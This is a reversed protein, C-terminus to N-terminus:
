KKKPTRHKREFTLLCQYHRRSVKHHVGGRMTLVIIFCYDLCFNLCSSARGLALWCDSFIPFQMKKKESQCIISGGQHIKCHYDEGWCIESRRDPCQHLPALKLLLIKLLVEFLNEQPGKWTKLIWILNRYLHFLDCNFSGGSLKLVRKPCAGSCAQGCGGLIVVDIQLKLLYIGAHM